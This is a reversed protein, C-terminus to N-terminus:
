RWKPPHTCKAAHSFGRRGDFNRVIQLGALRQDPLQSLGDLFDRGLQVGGLLLDHFQFQRDGFEQLSSKLLPTLPVQFIRVLQLQVQAIRRIGCVRGLAESLRHHFRLLDHRTVRTAALRSLGTLLLKRLMQGPVFDFSRHRFVHLM